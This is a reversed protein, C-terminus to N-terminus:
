YGIAAPGYIKASTQPGTLGGVISKVCLSTGSLTFVGNGISVSGTCTTTLQGPNLITFFNGYGEVSVASFLASLLLTAIVSLKM